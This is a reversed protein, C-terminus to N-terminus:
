SEYEAKRSLRGPEHTRNYERCLERAREETVNRALYTKKGACPELGCPYDPNARWWTRHFVSFGADGHEM